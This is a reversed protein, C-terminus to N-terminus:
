ARKIFKELKNIWKNVKERAKDGARFSFNIGGHLGFALDQWFKKHEIIVKKTLLKWWQM